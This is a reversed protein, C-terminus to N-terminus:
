NGSTTKQKYLEMLLQIQHLVSIQRAQSEANIEKLYENSTIVGNELQLIAANKISNRLDIIEKDSSKLKILKGIEANQQTLNFKMNFLFTEKHIDILGKNIGVIKKEKKNTYFSTLSWNLRVGGIYYGKLDNNLINLPSPKGWGGQFFLFFKPYTKGTIIKSQIDYSKKQFDYLNLEPRNIDTSILIEQPKELLTTDSLTQNIFLGLMTIYVKRFSKMEINQQEVKLFEAQFKNLNLKYDVGNKIANSIRSIGSKIDKKLLDNQVIQEDILLIGFFLQNIRDKLKYLEVDLTQEEIQTFINQFEKQQYVTILDTIPQTVEGYIKYQNKDIPQINIGPINFPMTIVDSQYTFQGNIAVQPLYGKSINDVSYDGSKKILERQKVLPYNQKSLIYCNELTLTQAKTKFEILLVIIFILIKLTYSLISAM